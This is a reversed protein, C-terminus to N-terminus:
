RIPHNIGKFYTLTSEYLGKDIKETKRGWVASLWQDELAERASLRRQPDPNTLRIVFDKASDSINCWDEERFAINCDRNRSLVSLADFGEFPLKGSLLQYCIIGASFIDAKTGYKEDRLVEPAIYGPTGCKSCLENDIEFQASLGFDCIKFGEHDELLINDPKLDRHVIGCSHLYDVAELLNVMFMITLNEPYKKLSRIRHTLDGGKVYDCVLKIDHDSEYLYHLGLIRPHNLRRMIEVENKFQQSLSEESESNEKPLCKVAYIKRTYFESALYIKGFKGRGLEKQIAFDDELDELITLNSLKDLWIDLTEQNEAFFDQFKKNGELRFGYQDGSKTPIYFPQLRLWTIAVWKKIRKDTRSKYYIIFNKTLIFFRKKRSFNNHYVELWGHFIAESSSM